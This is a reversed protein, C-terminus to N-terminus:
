KGHHCLELIVCNREKRLSEKQIEDSPSKFKM